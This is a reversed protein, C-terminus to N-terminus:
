LCLCYIKDKLSGPVVILLSPTCTKVGIYKLAQGCLETVGNRNQKSELESISPPLPELLTKFELSIQKSSKSLQELEYFINEQFDIVLIGLSVKASDLSFTATPM